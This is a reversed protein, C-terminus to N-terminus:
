PLLNTAPYPLNIHSDLASSLLANTCVFLSSLGHIARTTKLICSCGESPAAADKGGESSQKGDCVAQLSRAKFPATSNRSM